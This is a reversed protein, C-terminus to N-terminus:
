GCMALYRELDIDDWDINGWDISRAVDTSCRGDISNLAENTSEAPQSDLPVFGLWAITRVDEGTSKAIDKDIETATM